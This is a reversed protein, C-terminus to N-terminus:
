NVGGLCFSEDFGHGFLVVAGFGLEALLDFLHAYVVYYELTQGTLPGADDRNIISQGYPNFQHRIVGPLSEKSPEQPVV